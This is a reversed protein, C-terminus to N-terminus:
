RHDGADPVGADCRMTADGCGQIITPDLGGTTAFPCRNLHAPNDSPSCSAYGANSVSSQWNAPLPLDFMM